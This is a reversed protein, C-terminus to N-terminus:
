FMVLSPITPLSQVSLHVSEKCLNYHFNSLVAPTSQFSTWLQLYQQYLQKQRHLKGHNELTLKRISKIKKSGHLLTPHVTDLCQYQTAVPRWTWVVSMTMFKGSISVDETDVSSQVLTEPLFNMRLNINSSFAVAIHNTHIWTAKYFIRKDFVNLFCQAIISM